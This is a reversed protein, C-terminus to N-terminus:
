ARNALGFHHGEFVQAHFRDVLERDFVHRHGDGDVALPVINVAEGRQHPLLLDGPFRKEVFRGGV